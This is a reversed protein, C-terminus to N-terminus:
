REKLGLQKAQCYDMIAAEDQGLKAYAKGRLHYAQGQRHDLTLCHNCDLIAQEYAGKAYYAQGRQYYTEWRDPKLAIAQTYDAIAQEYLEQQFYVLGRMQYAEAQPDMPMPKTHGSIFLLIEPVPKFLEGKLRFKAFKQHLAEEEETYGEMVGLVTLSQDTKSGLEQLRRAVDTSKGIKIPGYRGMKIFYVAM